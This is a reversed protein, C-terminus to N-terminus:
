PPTTQPREPKDAGDPLQSDSESEASLVDFLDGYDPGETAYFVAEPDEHFTVTPFMPFM